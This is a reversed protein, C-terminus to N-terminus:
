AADIKIPRIQDATPTDTMTELPSDGIARVLEEQIEPDNVEFAPSLAVRGISDDGNVESKLEEVFEKDSIKPVLEDILSVRQEEPEDEQNYPRMGLNALALDASKQEPSKINQQNDIKTENNM